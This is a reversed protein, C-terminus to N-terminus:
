GVWITKIHKSINHRRTKKTAIRQDDFRAFSVEGYIPSEHIM